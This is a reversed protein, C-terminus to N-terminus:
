IQGDEKWTATAFIHLVNNAKAEQFSFKANPNVANLEISSGSVNRPDIGKKTYIFAALADVLDENTIDVAIMKM